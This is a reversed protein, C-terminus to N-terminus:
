THGFQYCDGRIFTRPSFNVSKAPLIVETEAVSAPNTTLVYLIFSAGEPIHQIRDRKPWGYNGLLLRPVYSELALM